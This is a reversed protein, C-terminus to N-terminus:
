LTLPLSGVMIRRKKRDQAQSNRREAERLQQPDDSRNRKRGNAPFLTRPKAPLPLSQGEPLIKDAIEQAGTVTLLMRHIVTKAAVSAEKDNIARKYWSSSFQSLNTIGTGWSGNSILKEFVLSFPQKGNVEMKSSSLNLHRLARALETNSLKFLNKAVLEWSGYNWIQRKNILQVLGELTIVREGWTNQLDMTLGYAMEVQQFLELNEPNLVESATGNQDFLSKARRNTGFIEHESIITQITANLRMRKLIEVDLQEFAMKQLLAQHGIVKQAQFIMATRKPSLIAPNWFLFAKCKNQPSGSGDLLDTRKLLVPLVSLESNFLCKGGEPLSEELFYSPSALTYFSDPNSSSRQEVCLLWKNLAKISIKCAFLYEDLVSCCSYRHDLIWKTVKPEERKIINRMQLIQHYNSFFDKSNTESYLIASPVIMSPKILDIIKNSCMSEDDVILTKNLTPNSFAYNFIKQPPYDKRVGDLVWSKVRIRYIIWTHEDFWIRGDRLQRVHNAIRHDLELLKQALDWTDLAPIILTSEDIPIVVEKLGETEGPQCVPRFLFRSGM